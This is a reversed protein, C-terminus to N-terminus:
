LLTHCTRSILWYAVLKNNRELLRGTLSVMVSLLVCGPSLCLINDLHLCAMFMKKYIVQM